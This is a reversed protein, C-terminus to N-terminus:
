KETCAVFDKRPTHPRSAIIRMKLEPFNLQELYGPAVFPRIRELDKVTLVDGPKFDPKADAYQHMWNELNARTYARVDQAIANSAITVLAAAMLITIITFTATKATATRNRM